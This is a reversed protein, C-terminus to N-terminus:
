GTVIKAFLEIKSLQCPGLIGGFMKWQVSDIEMIILEDLGDQLHVKPHWNPM